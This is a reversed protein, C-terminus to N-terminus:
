LPKEPLFDKPSCKFLKALDNVHNVNYKARRNPTEIHGVFSDSMNLKQSLLIQSWGKEIRKEKVREIIYLEIKTFDGM